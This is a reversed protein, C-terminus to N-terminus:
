WVILTKLPCCNNSPTLTLHQYVRQSLIICHSLPVTYKPTLKPNFHNPNSIVVLANPEIVLRQEPFSQGPERKMSRLSSCFNPVKLDLSVAAVFVDSLFHIQTRETKTAIIGIWKSQRIYAFGGPTSNRPVM